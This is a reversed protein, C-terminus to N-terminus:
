GHLHNETIQNFMGNVCPLTGILPQYLGNKVDTYQNQYFYFCIFAICTKTKKFTVYYIYILILSFRIFSFCM